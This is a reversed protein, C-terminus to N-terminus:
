VVELQALLGNVVVLKKQEHEILSEITDVNPLVGKRRNLYDLVKNIEVKKVELSSKLMSIEQPTLTLIM